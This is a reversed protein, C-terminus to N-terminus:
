LANLINKIEEKRRKIPFLREVRNRTDMSDSPVNEVQLMAEAITNANTENLVIGTEGVVNSVEGTDSTIINCGCSMAEAIALGFGEYRSPQLYCKCDQLRRIKEEESIEGLLEINANLNKKNIYEKVDDYADICRGAIVLKPAKGKKVLIEVADITEYLCKRIVSSKDLGCVIFFYDERKKGSPKYKETDVCHPSYCYNSFKWDGSMEKLEKQSVMINKTAWRTANKILFRQWLPRKFYDREVGPCRYNFTGTIVIKKGLLRTIIVPFFAYTWWWVFILDAKWDIESFRTAIKMSPDIEKLIKIDQNYFDIIQLLEPRKIHCYFCIKM